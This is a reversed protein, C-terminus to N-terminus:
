MMYLCVFPLFIKGDLVTAIKQYFEIKEKVNEDMSEIVLDADKFAKKM